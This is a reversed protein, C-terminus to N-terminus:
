GSAMMNEGAGTAMQLQSKLVDLENTVTEIKDSNDPSLIKQKSLTQLQDIVKMLM